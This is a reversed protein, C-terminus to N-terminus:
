ANFRNMARAIGGFAFEIVAEAARTIMEKARPEEDADFASLVFGAMEDKPPMVEKKIGCRLRPFEDSRLHYIISYLGNHGGDSGKPRIRVVGLPLTFDDSIILLDKQGVHFERLADVIAEGSNNVYAMPKILAVDKTEIRAWSILYDGHGARLSRHFRQCLEDIVQFGLNHRTSEYEAGPNGLGAVIIRDV